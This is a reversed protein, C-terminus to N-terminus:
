VAGGPLGGFGNDSHWSKVTQATVGGDDPKAPKAAKAAARKKKWNEFRAVIGALGKSARKQFNPKSFRSGAYAGVVGLLALTPPVEPVGKIIFYRSFADQIMLREDIKSTKEYAFEDGGLRTGIIELYTACLNATAHAEQELTQRLQQERETQQREREYQERERSSKAGPVNLTSQAKPEIKKTGRGRKLRWTGDNKLRDEHIEPDFPNGKKDLKDTTPTNVAPSANVVEPSTAAPSGPAPAIGEQEALIHNLVNEKGSQEVGEPQTAKDEIVTTDNM